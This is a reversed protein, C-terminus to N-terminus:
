RKPVVKLEYGMAELLYQFNDVEIGGRGNEYISISSRSIGSRKELDVQTIGVRRRVEKLIKTKDIM